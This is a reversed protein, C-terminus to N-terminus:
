GGGHPHAWDLDQSYYLGLKLGKKACAEALEGVIDRGFPTADVANFGDARSRFLAFGEHHKATVVLYRMGAALALDVWEEPSFLIPNFARALAHYERNPIRYKSQIWEGIYGMRRGRWEGAPLAYLGWHVMMGFKADRFWQFKDM